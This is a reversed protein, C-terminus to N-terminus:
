TAKVSTSLKRFSEFRFKRMISGLATIRKDQNATWQPIAGAPAPVMTRFKFIRFVRGHLGVRDQRYFLPGKNEIIIALAFLAMVPLM